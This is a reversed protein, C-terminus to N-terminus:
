ESGGVCDLSLCKSHRVIKQRSRFEHGQEVQQCDGWLCQYTSKGSGVHVESVHSMLDTADVFTFQCDAWHCRMLQPFVEVSKQVRTMRPESWKAYPQHRVSPERKPRSVQGVAPAQPESAIPRPMGDGYLSQLHTEIFHRALSDGQEFDKCDDWQCSAETQVDQRIEAQVDKNVVSPLSTSSSTSPSHFSSGQTSLSSLPPSTPASSPLPALHQAHLHLALDSASSTDYECSLWLCSLITNPDISSKLGTELGESTPTIANLMPLSNSQKQSTLAMHSVGEHSGNQITPNRILGASSDPM